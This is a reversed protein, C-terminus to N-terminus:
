ESEESIPLWMTLGWAAYEDGLMDYMLVCDESVDDVSKESIAHRYEIGCQIAYLPDAQGCYNDRCFYYIATLADFRFGETDYTDVGGTAHLRLWAMMNEITKDRERINM